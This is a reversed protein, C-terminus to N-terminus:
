QQFPARASEQSAAAEVDSLRRDLWRSELREGLSRAAHVELRAAVPDGISILLSALRLRAEAESVPSEAGHWFSCASQCEAVAEEHRQDQALLEAKAESVLAKFSPM